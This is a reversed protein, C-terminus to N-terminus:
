MMLKYSNLTERFIMEERHDWESNLERHGSLLGLSLLLLVILLILTLM